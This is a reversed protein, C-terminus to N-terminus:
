KNSCRGYERLNLTHGLGLLCVGTITLSTEIPGHPSFIALGMLMLGGMGASLPVTYGHVRYGAGLGIVGLIFAIMLGIEHIIPNGLTLSLSSILGAALATVVCHVVCLGSIVIAARDAWRTTQTVDETMTSRMPMFYDLNCCLMKAATADKRFARTNCIPLVM